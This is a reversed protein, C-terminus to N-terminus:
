KKIPKTALYILNINEEAEQETSFELINKDLSAELLEVLERDVEKSYSILIEFLEVLQKELEFSRYKDFTERITELNKSVEVYDFEECWEKLDILFETLRTNFISERTTLDLLEDSLERVEVADFSQYGLYMETLNVLSDVEKEGILYEETKKLIILKKLIKKM